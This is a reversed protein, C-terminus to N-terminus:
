CCACRLPHRASYIGDVEEHMHSYQHGCECFHSHLENLIEPPHEEGYTRTGPIYSCARVGSVVDEDSSEIFITSIKNAERLLKAIYDGDRWDFFTSCLVVGKWRFSRDRADEVWQDLIVKQSERTRLLGEPTYKLFAAVLGNIAGDSIWRRVQAESVAFGQSLFFSDEFPNMNGIQLARCAHAADFFEVSLPDGLINKKRTFGPSIYLGDKTRGARGRRQIRQAESISGVKSLFCTPMEVTSVVQLQKQIDVVVDVDLNVGVESMNTTLVVKYRGMPPAKAAAYNRDMTRRYYPIVDAVDKLKRYWWYVSWRPRYSRGGVIPCFIMMKKPTGNEVETMVWEEIRALDVDINEVASSERLEPQHTALSMGTATLEVLAHHRKKVPAGTVLDRCMRIMVMTRSDHNHVEDLVFLTPVNLNISRKLLKEALVAHPMVMVKTSGGCQAGRYVGKPNYGLSGLRDMVERCIARTPPSVIVNMGLIQADEVMKPVGIFTKGSGPAAMWQIHSGKVVKLELESEIMKVPNLVEVHTGPKAWVGGLQSSQKLNKGILGVLELEGEDSQRFIPSGSSGPLSRFTEFFGESGGDYRYVTESTLESEHEVMWCKVFLKDGDAPRVM